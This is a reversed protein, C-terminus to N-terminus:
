QTLRYGMLLFHRSLQVLQRVVPRVERPPHARHLCQHQQERQEAVAEPGDTEAPVRVRALHHDLTKAQLLHANGM